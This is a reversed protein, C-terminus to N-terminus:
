TQSKVVGYVTSHWAGRDMPNQEINLISVLVSESIRVQESEKEREEGGGEKEGRGM